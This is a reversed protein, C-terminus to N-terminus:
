GGREPLAFEVTTLLQENPFPKLLIAKAGLARAFKLNYDARMLGGGSIAIVPISPHRKKLFAILELGDTEPMILDTVVLDFAAHDFAKIAARGDAAGVVAYGADSLTTHLASRMLEDDDVVLISQSAM